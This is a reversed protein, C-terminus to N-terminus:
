KNNEAIKLQAEWIALKEDIDKLIKEDDPHRSDRVETIGMRQSQLKAIEDRILKPTLVDKWERASDPDVVGDDPAQDLPDSLSGMDREINNASM